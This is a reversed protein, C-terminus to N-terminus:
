VGGANRADGGPLPTMQVGCFNLGVAQRLFQSLFVPESERDLAVLDPAVDGVKPLLQRNIGGQGIQEWGRLTGSYWAGAVVAWAIVAMIMLSSLPPQTRVAPAPSTSM